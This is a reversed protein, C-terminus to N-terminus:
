IKNFECSQPFKSFQVPENEVPEVVEEPEIM